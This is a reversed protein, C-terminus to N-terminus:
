ARSKAILSPKKSGRFMSPWFVFRRGFFLGVAQYQERLLISREFESECFLIIHATCKKWIHFICIWHIIELDTIQDEQWDRSWSLGSVELYWPIWKPQSNNLDMILLVGYYEKFLRTQLTGVWIFDKGLVVVDRSNIGSLGSGELYYFTDM